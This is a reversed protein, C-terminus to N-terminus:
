EGRAFAAEARQMAAEVEQNQSFADESGDEPIAALLTKCLDSNDGLEKARLLEARAHVRDAKRKAPDIWTAARSLLSAGFAEHAVMDEPYKAVVKELLAAAEPLKHEQYLQMAQQREPDSLNTKASQGSAASSSLIASVVTVLLWRELRM